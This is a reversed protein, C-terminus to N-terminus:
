PAVRATAIGAETVIHHVPLDDEGRPVSPAVQCQYCYGIRVAHPDAAFTRDYYGRGWGLRTGAHDFALGPVLYVDIEGAAVLPAQPSPERIGFAGATLEHEGAVLHFALAHEDPLVRPFAIAVGRE